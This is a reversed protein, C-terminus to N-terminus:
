FSDTLLSSFQVEISSLIEFLSLDVTYDVAWLNLSIFVSITTPNPLLPPWPGGQCPCHWHPPSSWLSASLTSSIIFTLLLFSTKLCSNQHNQSTPSGLFSAAAPLLHRIFSTHDKNNNPQTELHPSTSPTQARSDLVCTSFEPKSLPM